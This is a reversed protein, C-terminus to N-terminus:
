GRSLASDLVSRLQESVRFVDDDTMGVHLPLALSTHFAERSAPYDDAKLAYKRRYYPEQHISYTGISTEIGRAGLAEIVQDRDFESALRIVYAQHVSTFGDPVVPLSLPAGDLADAYCLALRRRTEIHRGLRKMQGVGLAGQLETMRYNYGVETFRLRGDVRVAGHSRLRRLRDALLDDNTLVMGGEATTLVKRPHFSLTAMSSEAGIQVPEGEPGPYTAGLACAADEILAISRARCVEVLPTQNAPLGFLHVPIMARTRETIAALAREPDLNFTGLEIDVPVAKAGVAEVMNATAPFTFDPVIVEDGPQLDLAMLALHLSATGNANAIAHKVGVAQEVAREFADVRPGHVLRGSRLVDVVAAIEDEELRPDALRIRAHADM